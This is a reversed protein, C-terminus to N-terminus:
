VGVSPAVVTQCLDLDMSHRMEIRSEINKSDGIHKELNCSIKGWVKLSWSEVGSKEVM